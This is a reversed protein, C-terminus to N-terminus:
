NVYEPIPKSRYSPRPLDSVTLLGPRANIVDPIRNIADQATCCEGHADEMVVCMNPSGEIRWTNTGEVGGAKYVSTFAGRLAIGEETELECSLRSGAAVGKPLTKGLGEVYYDEQLPIFEVSNKESIVHLRMGAAIEHLTFAYWSRPAEGKFREDFAERTMGAGCFKEAVQAFPDM